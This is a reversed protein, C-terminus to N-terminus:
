GSARMLMVGRWIAPSFVLGLAIVAFQLPIMRITGSSDVEFTSDLFDPEIAIRIDRLRSAMGSLPGLAAWLQGTDAPDGLGLRVRLRVDKKHIARWVDAVFRLIRRRFSSRRIAAMYNTDRGSSQAWWGARRGAVEPKDPEPKTLDPSVDARVLGFAWILRLDASLAQRWSCQYTLTLPVALLLVVLSLIIVTGILM